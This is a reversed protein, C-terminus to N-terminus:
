RIVMPLHARVLTPAARPGLPSSSRVVVVQAQAPPANHHHLLLLMQSGREALVTQDVIASISSGNVGSFVPRQSLLPDALNVPVLASNILDYEIYGAAPARDVVAAFGNADRARTEVFYRLRPQAANLGLTSARVAHFMVRTNFPAVDLRYPNLTSTPAPWTNWFSLQGAYRPAEGPLIQYLAGIFVDNPSGGATYDDTLRDRFAGVSTTVLVYDPANDLNSDIYVRFEVESPTSWAAHTAVGFLVVTAPAAMDGTAPLNNSAGVYQLDAARLRPSLGALPPSVGNQELAFASVLPLQTGLNGDPPVGNRAGSNALPIQVQTADPPAVLEATPGVSEASSKPFIQFPVEQVQENVLRGSLMFSRRAWISCPNVGITHLEGAGVGFTRNVLPKSDYPAGARVVRVAHNGIELPLYPSLAGAALAAIALTGDIYVDVSTADGYPNANFFHILATTVPPAPPIEDIVALHLDGPQGWLTLTYDHGDQLDVQQTLLTTGLGGGSGAVVHVTTLGPTVTEYSRHEGASLPGFPEAGVIFGAPAVSAAHVVRVRAGLTSTIRVHGGHEAM